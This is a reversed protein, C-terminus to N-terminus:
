TNNKFRKKFTEAGRANTNKPPSYDPLNGPEEMMDMNNKLIKAITVYNYVNGALARKCAAELRKKGYEKGLRLLGLMSQYAQHIVQRSDMVKQFYETASPGCEKAQGLYYEPKWGKQKYYAQHAEPMHVFETTFDHKKYSRRHLAVRDMNHFVEVHDSCYLVKVGLGILRHPVSYYHRDEGLLIHYNKQVKAQAYHRLEYPSDPLPLLRHKEENLFVEQRSFSKKQFDKLHHEALKERIAANLEPLSTFIRNRLRAYIRMYAIHVHNEATPKDKPRYPRSALLGTGNHSAWQELAEPFAPEYRCSKTVWQKMNDSKATLPVGGFYEVTNNLAMIVQPLKPNPLAEVYGFGSYPLVAVLVPCAILEGTGPDVYHLPKGAFDIEMREAPVHEFRMTADRSKSARSLLDCFRSYGFGDPEEKRYEEWLLQRTVGIRTLETFFYGTQSIFHSRKPDLPEEINEKQGSVLKELEPDSLNLLSEYDLGTLTFSRKYRRITLRSIKLERSIARESFRRNLFLLIQRVKHM